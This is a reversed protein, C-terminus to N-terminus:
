QSLFLRMARLVREQEVVFIYHHGALELMNARPVTRQFRVCERHQFPRRETAVFTRAAAYGSDRTSLWPFESSVTALACIALVPQQIRSWEEPGHEADATLGKLLAARQEEDASRGRYEGELAPTWTGFFNRRLWAIVDAQSTIGVMPPRQVPRRKVISDSGRLDFAADLYVMRDVRTPHRTALRSLIWGAFSHGAFSAHAIHLSDLAEVVADAATNLVYGAGPADSEGFGPLSVAVVHFRDTLKPAIDDFVHANSNWGHLLVLTPGRGGWDLYQIRRGPRGVFGARHPSTDRWAVPQVVILAALALAFLTGSKVHVSRDADGSIFYM